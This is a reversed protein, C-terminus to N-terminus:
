AAIQRHVLLLCLGQNWSALQAAQKSNSALVCGAQGSVSVSELVQYADLAWTTPTFFVWCRHEATTVMDWLDDAHGQCQSHPCGHSLNHGGVGGPSLALSGGGALCDAAGTPSQHKASAALLVMVKMCGRLLATHQTRTEHASSKVSKETALAHQRHSAELTSPLLHNFRV